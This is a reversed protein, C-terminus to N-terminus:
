LSISKFVFPVLEVVSWGLGAYQLLRIGTDVDYSEEPSFLFIRQMYGSQKSCLSLQGISDTKKMSPSALKIPQVYCSSKIPVGMLNCILPLLWRALAKSCIKVIIIIPLGVMIRRIFIIAGLHPGFLKPVDEHHFQSFTRQIGTVVGLAAGNFATHFEFSPTRQEPM